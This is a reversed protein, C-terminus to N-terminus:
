LEDSTDKFSYPELGLGDPSSYFIYTDIIFNKGSRSLIIESGDEATWLRYLTLHEAGIAMGIREPNDKYLDDSWDDGSLSPEGYKETLKKELSCFDDYYKNDNVHKEQLAYVGRCFKWDESFNYAIITDLGNVTENIVILANSDDSFTYDIGETKGELQSKKVEDLSAGWELGRFKFTDNRDSNNEANNNMDGVTKVESKKADPDAEQVVDEEVYGTTGNVRANYWGDKAEDLLVVYSGKKPHSKRNSEKDPEAYVYTDKKLEYTTEALAPVAMVLVASLAILAKRM